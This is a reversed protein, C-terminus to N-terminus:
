LAFFINPMCMLKKLTLLTTTLPKSKVQIPRNPQSHCTKFTNVLDHKHSSRDVQEVNYETTLDLLSSELFGLYINGSCSLVM